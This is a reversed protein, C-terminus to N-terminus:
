AATQCFYGQWNRERRAASRPHDHSCDTGTKGPCCGDLGDARFNCETSAFRSTRCVRYRYGSAILSGISAPTKHKNLMALQSGFDIYLEAYFTGSPLRIPLNDTVLPSKSPTVCMQRNLIHLNKCVHPINKGSITTRNSTAGRNSYCLQLRNVPQIGCCRELQHDSTEIRPSNPIQGAGHPALLM